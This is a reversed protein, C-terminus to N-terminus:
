ADVSPPLLHQIYRATRGSGRHEQAIGEAPLLRPPAPTQAAAGTVVLHLDTLAQVEYPTGPGLLLVAPPVKEWVSDRTGLEPFVTEGATVRCRGGLVVLATENGSSDGSITAAAPVQYAEFHIFRWDTGDPVARVRRGASEPHARPRYLLEM